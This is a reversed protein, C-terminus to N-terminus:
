ATPENAPQTARIINGAGKSRRLTSSGPVIKKLMKSRKWAEFNVDIKDVKPVGQPEMKSRKESLKADNESVKRCRSKTDIKPHIKWQNKCSKQHNKRHNKRGLEYFAIKTFHINKRLFFWSKWPEVGENKWTKEIIKRDNKSMSNQISKKMIKSAMEAGNEMGKRGKPWWKPMSKRYRNKWSKQIGNQLVKQDFEVWRAPRRFTVKKLFIKNKRPRLRPM